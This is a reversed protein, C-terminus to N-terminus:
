LAEATGPKKKRFFLIAKVISKAVAVLAVVVALGIEVIKVIEMIDMHCREKIPIGGNFIAKQEWSLRKRATRSFCRKCIDYANSHHGERVWYKQECTDCIFTHESMCNECLYVGDFFTANYFDCDGGCIHCTVVEDHTARGQRDADKGGKDNSHRCRMGHSGKNARHM